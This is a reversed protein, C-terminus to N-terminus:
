RITSAPEPRPGAIAVSAAAASSTRTTVVGSGVEIASAWAAIRRSRRSGPRGDIRATTLWAPRPRPRRRGRGARPTSGGTGRPPPRRGPSRDPGVRVDGQGDPRPPRETVGIRAGRRARRGGGPGPGPVGRGPRGPRPRGPKKAARAARQPERLGRQARRGRILALTKRLSRNSRRPSFEAPLSLRVEGTTRHCLSVPEKSRSLICPPGRNSRPIPSPDGRLRARPGLRIPTAARGGAGLM